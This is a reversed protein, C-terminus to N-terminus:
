RPAVGISVSEAPQLSLDQQLGTQVISLASRQQALEEGVQQLVAGGQQRMGAIGSAIGQQMAKGVAGPLSPKLRRRLLWPLLWAIGILLGTHIAFNLGLFGAEGEIGLYYGVVLHYSAWAAAAMPLLWSLWGTFHYLGRQLLGGPRALSRLLNNEMHGLLEAKGRERWARLRSAFPKVPIGHRRALNELEMVLDDLGTEARSSWIRSGLDAPLDEIRTVSGSTDPDSADDSQTALLRKIQAQASLQLASGTATLRRQLLDQWAADIGALPYGTLVQSFHSSLRLLEQERAQMGLRQLVELGHERIAQNISGELQEFDDEVTRPLCSTRLIVPNRFGESLLRQRFDAVQEARGQDWHNMIFLWSHKEARQQLFRWGLDDQYPEPSVVYVLWDIYPLWSQVLVRHREEVSDIDPMDLWAILRREDDSHYAIRTEAVPLDVPLEGLRYDQHLYLTVEHSTPRQVGVQAVQERALRNLLSSKGVGTGGFFAVILPREGQRAFLAEAQQQEIQSLSTLDAESLWGLQRASEAWSLLEQYHRNFGGNM